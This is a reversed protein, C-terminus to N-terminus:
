GTGNQDLWYSVYAQTLHRHIVTGESESEMAVQM